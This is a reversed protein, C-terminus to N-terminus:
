PQKNLRTKPVYFLKQSSGHVYVKKDLRAGKQDLFAYAQSALGRLIIALM